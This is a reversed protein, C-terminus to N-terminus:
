CQRDGATLEQSEPTHHGAFKFTGQNDNEFSTSRIGGHVPKEAIHLARAYTPCRALILSNLQTYDPSSNQCSTVSSGLYLDQSSSFVSSSRSSDPFSAITLLSSGNRAPSSSSRQIVRCKQKDKPKPLLQQGSGSCYKNHALADM